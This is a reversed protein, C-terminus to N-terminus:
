GYAKKGFARVAWYMVSRKWKAVGLAGMAEHFIEDCAARSRDKKTYLYDHLIAAKAYKGSPPLIAWFIRPITALDTMFQEPVTITEDAREYVLPQVTRWWYDSLWELIAPTTFKSM